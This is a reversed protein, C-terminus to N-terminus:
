GTLDCLVSAATGEHQTDGDLVGVRFSEDIGFHRFALHCAGVDRYLEVVFEHLCGNVTRGVYLLEGYIGLVRLDFLFDIRRRQPLFDYM